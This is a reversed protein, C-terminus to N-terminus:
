NIEYEVNWGFYQTMFLGLFYKSILDTQTKGTLSFPQLQLPNKCKKRKNWERPLQERRIGWISELFKKAKQLTM